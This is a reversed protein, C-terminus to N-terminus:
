NKRMKRYQMPTMNTTKKFVKTFYSQDEFGVRQAVDSLKINDDRLLMKSQNVRVDNLFTVFSVDMEEKFIKSFYTPTIFVMNAISELTIKEQYHSHVYQIAKQIINLHRSDLYYFVNDIFVNMIQSLWVSLEDMTHILPINQLFNHTLVMCNQSDAGHKIAERSILVLLEYVRTKAVSLNGGTSFFVYGLLDNLHKNAEKRDAIGICELLKNEIDFPYPTLEGENKYKFINTSIEGQIALKEQERVFGHYDVYDNLFGISMFLLNSLHQVREPEVVKVNELEARIAQINEEELNREERLDIDIYDEREVMLFPGVTVKAKNEVDYIIPSVFYTLGTPGAYVYKGGFRFSAETMAVIHSHVCKGKSLHAHECIKCSKCGYGFEEIIEGTDTTITCPLGTSNYYARICDIIGADEITQNITNNAM